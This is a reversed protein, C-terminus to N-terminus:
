VLLIGTAILAVGLMQTQTISEGMAVGVLTDSISTMANWYNNVRFLKEKKLARQFIYVVVGYGAYGIGLFEQKGTMAYHKLSGDAVTEVVAMAAAFRLASDDLLREVIDSM